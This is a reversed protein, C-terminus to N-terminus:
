HIPFFTQVMACEGTHVDLGNNDQKARLLRGGEPLSGCLQSDEPGRHCAAHSGRAWEEATVGFLGEM